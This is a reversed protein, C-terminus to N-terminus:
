SQLFAQPLKPVPPPLERDSNNFFLGGISKRRPTTIHDSNKTDTRAITAKSRISKISGLWGVQGSHNELPNNNNSSIIQHPNHGPLPSRSEVVSVKHKNRREGKQTTHIPTPDNLTQNTNTGSKFSDFIRNLKIINIRAPITRGITKPTRRAPPTKTPTPPVQGPLVSKRFPDIPPSDCSSANDSLDELVEDTGPRQGFEQYDDEVSTPVTSHSGDDLPSSSPTSSETASSQSTSRRDDIGHGAIRTTSPLEKNKKFRTAFWGPKDQSPYKEAAEQTLRKEEEIRAARMKQYEEKMEKRQKKKEAEAELTALAPTSASRLPSPRYVSGVNTGPPKLAKSRSPGVSRFSHVSRISGESSNRAGQTNPRISALSRRQELKALRLREAEYDPDFFQGTSATNPPLLTAANYVDGRISSSHRSSLSSHPSPLPPPFFGLAHAPHPSISSLTSSRSSPRTSSPHNFIAPHYPSLDTTSNRLPDIFSCSAANNLGLTSQRNPLLPQHLELQNTATSSNARGMLQRHFHLRQDDSHNSLASQPRSVTM